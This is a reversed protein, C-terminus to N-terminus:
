YWCYPAEAVAAATVPASGNWHGDEPLVHDALQERLKENEMKECVIGWGVAEEYGQCLGSLDKKSSRVTKNWRGGDGVESEFTSETKTTV